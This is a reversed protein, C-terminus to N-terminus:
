ANGLVPAPPSGRLESPMDFALTKISLRRRAMERQLAATFLGEGPTLTGLVIRNVDDAHADPKLAALRQLSPGIAVTQTAGCSPSGDVGVLAVVEFGANVYDACELAVQRALRRYRLRTYWLLLPLLLRASRCLFFGRAGFLRLLHRKLVGGWVRQEPCPMQVIGYGRELCEQLVAAVAGCQRAGGLYRTNENLLCHSLFVVKRGREDTLQRTWHDAPTM